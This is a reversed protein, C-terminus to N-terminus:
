ASSEVPIKQIVHELVLNFLTSAPEDTQKLVSDTKNPSADGKQHVLSIQRSELNLCYLDTWVSKRRNLPWSYKMYM